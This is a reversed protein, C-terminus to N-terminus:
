ELLTIGEDPDYTHQMTEGLSHKPTKNSAKM